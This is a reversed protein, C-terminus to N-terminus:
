ILNALAGGLRAKFVQLSLANVVERTSNWCRMFLFLHLQLVYDVGHFYCTDSLTKMLFFFFSM